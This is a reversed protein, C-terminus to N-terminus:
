EYAAITINSQQVVVKQIILESEGLISNRKYRLRVSDVHGIRLPNSGPVTVLNTLIFGGDM